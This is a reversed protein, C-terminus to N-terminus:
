EEGQIPVILIKNTEENIIVDANLFLRKGRIWEGTGVPTLPILNSNGSEDERVYFYLYRAVLQHGKYFSIRAQYLKGPEIELSEASAGGTYGPPITGYEIVKTRQSWGRRGPGSVHWLVTNQLMGGDPWKYYAGVVLSSIDGDAVFRPRAADEMAPTVSVNPTDCCGSSLALSGFLTSVWLIKKVDAYM